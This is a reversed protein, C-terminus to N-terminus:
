VPIEEREVDVRKGISHYYCLLIFIPVLVMYKKIRSGRKAWRIMSSVLEQKEEETMGREKDAFYLLIYTLGAIMAVTAYVEVRSSDGTKPEADKTPNATNNNSSDNNGGNASRNNNEASSSGASEVSDVNSINIVDNDDKDTNDSDGGTGTGGSDGNGGGTGTDGGDGTNGGGNETEFAASITHNGRIDIFTYYRSTEAQTNIARARISDTLDDTRDIGDVTVAKIRYGNNPTIEFTLTGGEQVEKRGEPTISGGEGASAEIHYKTATNSIWSAYIKSTNKIPAGFNFIESGNNTTVWQSFTYGEKSPKEPEEAKKGSLVTQPAQLTGAAYATDGDYFTVTYYDITAEGVGSSVTITEETDIGSTGDAADTIDYIQYQGDPVSTFDTILEANLNTVPKLGFEKKHETWDSNDKQVHITIESDNTEEFLNWGFWFNDSSDWDRNDAKFAAQAAELATGTLKTGDESIFRIYREDATNEFVDGSSVLPVRVNTGDSFVVIQLTELKPCDSFARTTIFTVNNSFKVSVLNECHWFTYGNITTVGNPIEINTFSRCGNFADRGIITVGDPIKVNPLSICGAFAYEGISTLSDSFNVNTLSSCGYFISNSINTMSNPLKVNTLSRCNYFVSDSISTVGDPIEISILNSCERFANNDISTLSDPIEISTLSSCENFAYHEISTIGYSIKVNELNRHFGFANAGISKVSYTVDGRQATAPIVLEAINSPNGQNSAVKVWKNDEDTIQYRLIGDEFFDGVTYPEIREDGSGAVEEVGDEAAEAGTLQEPQETEEPLEGEEGEISDDGEGTEESEPAGCNEYNEACIPCDENVMGESCRSDCVCINEDEKDEGSLEGEDETDGADTDHVSGEDAEETEEMSVEDFAEEKSLEVDTASEQALVSLNSEGMLLVAVMFMAIWRHLTGTGRRVIKEGRM